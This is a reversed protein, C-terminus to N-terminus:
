KNLIKKLSQSMQEVTFPKQIFGDCGRKLIESAQGDLSYGSCLLVKVKPNIEVMKDYAEGGGMDPMIMDLLVLHIRDWDKRYLKLAERGGNASLVQYGLKNLLVEGADRV